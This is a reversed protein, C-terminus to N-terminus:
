GETVIRCEVEPSCECRVGSFLALGNGVLPMTVEVQGRDYPCQPNTCETKVVNWAM